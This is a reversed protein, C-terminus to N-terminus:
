VSGARGRGCPERLNWPPVLANDIAILAHDLMPTSGRKRSATHAASIAAATVSFVKTRMVRYLRIQARALQAYGFRMRRPTAFEPLRHDASTPRGFHAKFGFDSPSVRLCAFPWFDSCFPLRRKSQDCAPLNLKRIEPRRIRSPNPNASHRRLTGDHCKSGVGKADTSRPLHWTARCLSLPRHRFLAPMIAM